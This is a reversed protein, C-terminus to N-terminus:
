GNPGVIAMNEGEDLTFNVPQAMRWAPMRTIEDAINIIHKMNDKTQSASRTAVCM